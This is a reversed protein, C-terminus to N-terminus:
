VRFWLLGKFSAKFLAGGFLYIYVYIYIHMYVYMYVYMHICIYIYMSICLYIYTYIHGFYPVVRM